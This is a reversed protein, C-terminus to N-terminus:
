ASVEAGLDNRERLVDESESSEFFERHLRTVTERVRSEEVAFTLNIKSAGQSILSVNIDSITSFIRAAIGPTSRLGEGVICLIARKDEVSVTGLKELDAVIAPLSATDDLSLSVSVESTTVVDVATKHEDFVEFLARLFGYAGLM